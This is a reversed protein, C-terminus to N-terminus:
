RLRVVGAFLGCWAALAPGHAVIIQANKKRALWVAEFSGRVRPLNLFQIAREMRNRPSARAFEFRVGSGALPGELWRWNPDSADTCCVVLVSDRRVLNEM